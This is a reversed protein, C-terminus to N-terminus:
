SIKAMFASPLPCTLRVFSLVSSLEGAQDGLPALIANVRLSKPGPCIQAILASPLSWVFRKFLGTTSSEPGEQDGPPVCMTKARYSSVFGPSMQNMFASPLSWILRM